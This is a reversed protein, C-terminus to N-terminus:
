YTYSDSYCQVLLPFARNRKDEVKEYDCRLSIIVHLFPPFLLSKAAFPLELPLDPARNEQARAEAQEQAEKTKAFLAEQMIM